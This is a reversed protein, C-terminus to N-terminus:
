TLDHQTAWTAVQSRCRMDLKSLINAVHRETTSVAIVLDAAIQRNSFGQAIRSVVERERPTLKQAPTPGITPMLRVSRAHANEGDVADGVAADGDAEALLRSQESLWAALTNLTAALIRRELKQGRAALVGQLLDGLDSDAGALFQNRQLRQIAAM